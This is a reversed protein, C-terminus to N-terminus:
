SVFDYLGCCLWCDSFCLCDFLQGSWICGDQFIHNLYSYYWSQHRRCTKMRFYDYRFMQVYKGFRPLKGIYFMMQLWTLFCGVAATHWQWLAMSFEEQFPDEHFTILLFSIILSLDIYTDWKMFYHKPSTYFKMTENIVYILTFIILLVWSIRAIVLKVYFEEVM